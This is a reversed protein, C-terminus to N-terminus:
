PRVKQRRRQRLVVALLGLVVATAIVAVAWAGIVSFRLCNNAGTLPRFGDGSCPSHVLLIGWLGADRYPTRHDGYLYDGPLRDRGGAGGDLLLTTAELGGVQVSSLLDAGRRGPELPWRHGEIHFVQAQESWPVLVHIRVPDGIAADMVPTAPDGHGSSGFVRAADKTKALRNSLPEMRYNLGVVGDVQETYPMRHSGIGADEDQFFLTFDRFAPAGPPHVDVKWGARSSM